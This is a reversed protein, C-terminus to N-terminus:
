MFIRHNITRPPRGIAREMRRVSKTALLKFEITDIKRYAVTNWRGTTFIKIRKVPHFCM